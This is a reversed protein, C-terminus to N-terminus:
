ESIVIKTTTSVGDISVRVFYVGAAADQMDITAEAESSDITKIVKGTVDMIDIKMSKGEANSVQFLGTNPNPMISLVPMDYMQVLDTTLQITVTKSCKCGKDNEAELTVDYKSKKNYTYLTQADTSVDGNGFQWYYKAYTNNVPTFTYQLKGLNKYTFDCVPNENVTFSRYATDSCANPYSATLVITYTTTVAPEFKVQTHRENSTGISYDWLFEIDNRNDFTKNVFDATEGSCIDKVDFEAKPQPLIEIVETTTANCGNTYSIKLTVTYRDEKLWSKTVHKTSYSTNDSFTWEYVPSPFTEVSTNNFTTLKKACYQNANFSPAPTEKVIIPKEISDKCDFESVSLLKIIFTGSNTYTHKGEFNSSNSNDGFSWWAGQKGSAITSNNKILAEYNSCVGGQPVEFEALPKPFQYVKKSFTSKCGTNSTTATLKVLYEGSSAYVHSPNTAISTNGDGFEWLYNLTGNNITSNNQFNLSIGECQNTNKFEAIPNEFVT